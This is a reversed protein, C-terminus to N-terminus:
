HFLEIEKATWLARTFPKVSFFQVFGPISKAGLKSIFSEKLSQISQIVDKDLGLGLSSKYVSDYQIIPPVSAVSNTFPFTSSFFIKQVPVKLEIPVELYQKFLSLSPSLVISIFTLVVISLEFM